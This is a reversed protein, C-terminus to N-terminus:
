DGKFSIKINRQSSTLFEIILFLDGVDIKSNLGFALAFVETDLKDQDKELVDHLLDFISQIKQIDADCEYSNYLEKMSGSVDLLFGLLKKPNPNISEM